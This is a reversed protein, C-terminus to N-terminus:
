LSDDGIINKAESSEELGKQLGEKSQLLGSQILGSILEANADKLQLTLEQSTAPFQLTAAKGEGNKDKNV